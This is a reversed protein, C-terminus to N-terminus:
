FKDCKATITLFANLISKVNPNPDYFYWTTYLFMGKDFSLLHLASHAFFNDYSPHQSTLTLETDTLYSHNGGFKIKMDEWKFKFTGPKFIEPKYKNGNIILFNTSECYYVDGMGGMSISGFSVLFLVIFIFRM